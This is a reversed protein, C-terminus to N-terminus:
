SNTNPCISMLVNLIKGSNIRMELALKLHSPSILGLRRTAEAQGRWSDNGNTLAHYRSIPMKWIGQDEKGMQNMNQLNGKSSM